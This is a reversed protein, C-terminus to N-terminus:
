PLPPPAGPVRRVIFDNFEATFGEVSPGGIPTAMPTAAMVVTVPEGMYVGSARPSAPHGTVPDVGFSYDLVSYLEYSDGPVLGAQGPDVTVTPADAPNYVHIAGQGPVYQHPRYRRRVAFPEVADYTSTLDLGTEGQYGEYWWGLAGDTPNAVVFPDNDWLYHYENEGVDYPAPTNLARHKVSEYWYLLYSGPFVVHLNRRRTISDWNAFTPTGGIFWNDTFEGGTAAPHNKHGLEFNPGAASRPTYVANHQFQMNELGQGWGQVDLGNGLLRSHFIANGRIRFNRLYSTQTYPHLNVGWNAYVHNDEIFREGVDNQTYIGHAFGTNPTERGNHYVQCGYLVGGIVDVWFSIGNGLHDHVLVDMLHTGVGTCNLGAIDADPVAATNFTEFWRWWTHAGQILIPGDIRAWENKASRITIPLAATGTLNSNTYNKQPLAYPAAGRHLLVCDGPQVAPPHTLVHPLSWPSAATGANAASGAPHVHWHAGVSVYAFGSVGEATATIVARHTRGSATVVGTTPHVPANVPDSSTWTVTKGALAHGSPWRVSAAMALTSGLEVHDEGPAVVVFGVDGPPPGAPAPRRRRHLRIAPSVLLM